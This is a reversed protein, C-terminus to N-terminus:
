KDWYAPDTYVPSLADWPTLDPNSTAYGRKVHGGQLARVYKQYECACNELNELTLRPGNLKLKAIARMAHQNDRITMLLTEADRRKLPGGSIEQLGKMAGPGIFIWEDLFREPLLGIKPYCLDILIEAGLFGGVGPITTLVAHAARATEAKMVDETLTRINKKVWALRQLMTRPKSGAGRTGGQVLFAGTFIKFGYQQRLKLIKAAKTRDWEAVGTFRGLAAYTEPWTFLRYLIVNFLLDGSTYDMSAPPIAHLLDRTVRDLDRYVNTFKVTQLIPDESWPPPRRQIVRRRFVEHRECVFRWFHDIPADTM